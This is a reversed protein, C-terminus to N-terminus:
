LIEANSAIWLTPEGPLECFTFPETLDGLQDFLFKAPSKLIVTDSPVSRIGLLQLATRMIPGQIGVLVVNIMTLPVVLMVAIPWLPPSATRRQISRETISIATLVVLGSLLFGFVNLFVTALGVDIMTRYAYYLAISVLWAAVCGVDMFFSELRFLGKRVVTITFHGLLAGSTVLAVMSWGLRGIWWDPQDLHSLVFLAVIAMPVGFIAVVFSALGPKAAKWRTEVNQCGFTAAGSLAPVFHTFHRVWLMMLAGYALYLAFLTALIVIIFLSGVAQEITGIPLTLRESVVYQTLMVVMILPAAFTVAKFASKLLDGWAKLTEDEAERETSTKVM